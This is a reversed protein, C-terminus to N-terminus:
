PATVFDSPRLSCRMLHGQAFCLPAGLTSALVPEATVGAGGLRVVLAIPDEVEAKYVGEARFAGAEIPAEFFCSSCPVGEAGEGLEVSALQYSASLGVASIEVSRFRGFDAPTVGYVRSRGGGPGHESVYTERSDGLRWDPEEPQWAGDDNVDVFVHLARAGASTRVSIQFAGGEVTSRDNVVGCVGDADLDDLLV